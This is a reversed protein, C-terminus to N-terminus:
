QQLLRSVEICPELIVSIMMTCGANFQVLGLRCVSTESALHPEREGVRLGTDRFSTHAEQVPPASEAQVLDFELDRSSSEATMFSHLSGISAYTDEYM